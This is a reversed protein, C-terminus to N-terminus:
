ALGWKRILYGEVSSVQAVTLSGSYAIIEGIHGNQMLRTSTAFTDGGLAFAQSGSVPTFTSSNHQWRDPTTRVLAGSGFSLYGTAASVGNLRYSGSGPNPDLNVRAVTSSPIGLNFNMSGNATKLSSSTRQSMISPFNDGAATTPHNWVCFVSGVAYTHTGTLWDNVFEVAALGNKVALRRTPRVGSTGQTFHRANGSKDEWRAVTGDAAVLSGGSTSDYLTTEDSGDLWLVLGAVDTPSQVNTPWAEDRRASEIESLRWVGSASAAGPLIRKGIVGGNRWPMM